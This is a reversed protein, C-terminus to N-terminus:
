NPEANTVLTATHSDCLDVLWGRASLRGERTPHETIDTVWLQGPESRHSSAHRRRVGLMSFRAGAAILLRCVVIASM